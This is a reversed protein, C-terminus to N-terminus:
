QVCTRHLAIHQSWRALATHKSQVLALQGGEKVDGGEMHVLVALIFAVQEYICFLLCTRWSMEQGIVQYGCIQSLVDLAM